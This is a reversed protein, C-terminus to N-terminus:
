PIVLKWNVYIVNSYKLKPYNKLNTPDNKIRKYLKGNGYYKQGLLYLYEGRKVTHIRQKKAPAPAPRPKNPPTTPKNVVAPAPPQWTPILLPEHEKLEILFYVDGSGDNEKYEFHSIVVPVNIPTTTVIYRLSYGGLAWEEIMRIYDYPDKGKVKIYENTADASPFFGTITTSRPEKGNYFTVKGKKVIKESSIDANVNLGFESPLVPFRIMNLRNHKHVLYVEIDTPNVILGM